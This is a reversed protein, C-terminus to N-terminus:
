QNDSLLMSIEYTEEKWSDNSLNDCVRVVQVIGSPYYWCPNIRTKSFQPKIEYAYWDMTTPDQAIFKATPLKVLAEKAVAVLSPKQTFMNIEIKNDCLYMYNEYFVFPSLYIILITVM